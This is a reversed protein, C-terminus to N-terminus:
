MLACQVAEGFPPPVPVSLISCLKRRSCLTFGTTDLQRGRANRKVVAHCDHLPPPSVPHPTVRCSAYPVWENWQPAWGGLYRVLLYISSPAYCVTEVRACYANGLSDVAFCKGGPGLFPAEWDAFRIILVALSKPLYVGAELAASDLLGVLIEEVSERQALSAPQVCHADLCLPAAQQLLRPFTCSPCLLCRSCCVVM